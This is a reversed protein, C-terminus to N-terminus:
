GTDEGGRMQGMLHAPLTNVPRKRADYEKAKDLLGMQIALDRAMRFYGGKELLELARNGDGSRFAAQAAWRIIGAAECPDVCEAYRQRATELNKEAAAGNGDAKAREYNAWAADASAKLRQAVLEAEVKARNAEIARLTNEPMPREAAM